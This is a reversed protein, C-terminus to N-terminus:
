YNELVFKAQRLNWLLYQLHLINCIESFLHAIYSDDLQLSLCFVPGCATSHKQLCDKRTTMQSFDGHLIRHTTLLRYYFTYVRPFTFCIQLKNLNVIM